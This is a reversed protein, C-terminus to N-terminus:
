LKKFPVPLGWNEWRPKSHAFNGVEESHIQMVGTMRSVLASKHPFDALWAWSPLRCFWHSDMDRAESAGSVWWRQIVLTTEM